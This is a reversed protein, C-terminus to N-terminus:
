IIDLYLLLGGNDRFDVGKLGVPGADRVGVLNKSVPCELDTELSPVLVPAHPSDAGIYCQRRTRALFFFFPKGRPGVVDKDRYVEAFVGLRKASERADNLKTSGLVAGAANVRLDEVPEHEGARRERRRALLLGVGRRRRRVEANAEERVQRPEELLREERPNRVIRVDPRRVGAQEEPLTSSEAPREVAVNAGVSRADGRILRNLTIDDSPTLGDVLRNLDDFGELGLSRPRM